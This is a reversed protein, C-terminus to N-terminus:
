GEGRMAVDRYAKREGMLKHIAKIINVTPADYDLIAEGILMLEAKEKDLLDKLEAIEECHRSLEEHYKNTLRANNEKLDAIAELLSQARTEHENIMTTYKLISLKEQKLATEEASNLNHLLNAITDQLETRQALSKKRDERLQNTLKANEEILTDRTKYSM